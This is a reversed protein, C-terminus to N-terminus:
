DSGAGPELKSGYAPVRSSGNFDQIKNREQNGNWRSFCDKIVSWVPGRNQAILKLWPWAGKQPFYIGRFFLRSTLHSIKYPAPEDAISDLAKQTAAPSYSNAWAYRVEQQVEAMTIHLPDHAMRFPAFDLWHKPRTLRNERALRDYLPTAPFPTIQGFVPLVPPWDRMEALTREAVGPTDHDLGFIFSTIAYINRQAMARLVGAYEAPKNFGKNVSALNAPDLSEMGIFIWKGGSAAILDLLEEDRLLNASIQGVWALQAGAAIIDRLLSKTRKVNIAFNDDVFFVAVKGNSNRARRKLRLMEEVVSANSRFRISDGFFGTVTCFECGYPCGRGSEIPVVHFTEWAYGFKRMLPRMFRPIRNFQELDLSDWPIAPYNQLNPKREKGSADTPTYIEKLQGQAADQVILPWTEDAEGLAVADAHQHGGDRGLAEDPIETVHPGGMVVPVGAARLADAVRYAKAIMRTMAGIGVLGIRENVAFEVLETDSMPRTNGDILVVQHEPPTLAQLLFMWLHPM